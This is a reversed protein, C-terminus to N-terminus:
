HRTGDGCEKLAVDVLRFNLKGNCRVCPYNLGEVNFKADFNKGCMCPYSLFTGWARRQIDLAEKMIKNQRELEEIRLDKGRSILCNIVAKVYESM